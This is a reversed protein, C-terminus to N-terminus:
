RVVSHNGLLQDAYYRACFVAFTALVFVSGAVLLARRSANRAGSGTALVAFLTMSGCTWLSGMRSGWMAATLLKMSHHLVFVSWAIRGLTDTMRWAIAVGAVAFMANMFRPMGGVDIASTGFAIGYVANGIVSALIM